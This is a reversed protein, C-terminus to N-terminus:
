TRKAFLYAGHTEGREVGAVYLGRRLYELFRGSISAQINKAEAPCDRRIAGIDNPVEIREVADVPALPEGAVIKAVRDSRLHWSAICRDTPLGGHLHSSTVGYQNLVYREVVAGLRQMNFFANKLELPDFTWEIMDIGRELAEERQALKLQRGAGLNRYGALVGMMNSHLYHTGDPKIGPVAILFGVLRDGDFAGMTQGGVKHAVVFLRVPLLELDEFGWITKQLQVAERLDSIETITRVSIM